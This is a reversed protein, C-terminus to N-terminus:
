PQRYTLQINTKGGDDVFAIGIDPHSVRWTVSLEGFIAAVQANIAIRMRNRAESRYREDSHKYMVVQDYAETCAKCFAYWTSCGGFPYTRYVYEGAASTYAIWIRVCFKELSTVEALLVEEMSKVLPECDLRPIVFTPLRAFTEATPPANAYALKQQLAALLPDVSASVSALVQAAEQHADISM